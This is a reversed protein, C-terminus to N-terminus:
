TIVRAFHCGARRPTRISETVPIYLFTVTALAASFAPVEILVCISEQARPFPRTSVQVVSHCPMANSGVLLVIPAVPMAPLM